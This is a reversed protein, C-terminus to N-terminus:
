TSGDLTLMVHTIKDLCSNCDVFQVHDIMCFENMPIEEGCLLTEGDLSFHMM